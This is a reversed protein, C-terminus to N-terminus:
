KFEDLPKRRSPSERLAAEDVHNEECFVKLLMQLVMIEFDSCLSFCCCCDLTWLLGEAKKSAEDVEIVETKLIEKAKDDFQRDSMELLPALASNLDEKNM